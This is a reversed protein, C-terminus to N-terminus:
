QADYHCTCAALESIKPPFTPGGSGATCLMLELVDVLSHMEASDCPLALTVNITNDYVHHFGAMSQFVSSIDILSYTENEVALLNINKILGHLASQRYVGPNGWWGGAEYELWAVDYGLGEQAHMNQILNIEGNCAFSDGLTPIVTYERMKIYQPNVGCYEVIARHNSTFRVGPCLTPNALKWAAFDTIHTHSVDTITVLVGTADTDAFTIVVDQGGIAIRTIVVTVTDAAVTVTYGDLAADADLAAAIATAVTAPTALGTTDILVAHGDFTITIHANATNEHTVLVSGVSQGIGFATFIGPTDDNIRDVLLEALEVCDGSPCEECADCCGTHVFYDRYYPTSTLQRLDGSDIIVRLNYDTDCQATFNVLDFIWDAEAEYCKLAYNYVNERQIIHSRVIDDLTGDANRDVGVAFYFERFNPVVTGDISLNTDANFIGLQGVALASPYSGAAIIGRTSEGTGVLVQFVDNNQNM